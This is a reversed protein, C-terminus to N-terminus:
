RAPSPPARGAGSRSSTRRGRLRLVVIVGIDMGAARSGQQEGGRGVPGARETPGPRAPRRARTPTTTATTFPSDTRSVEPPQELLHVAAGRVRRPLGSRSCSINRGHVVGEERLLGAREISSSSNDGAAPPSARASATAPELLFPRPRASGVSSSGCPTRPPVARDNPDERHALALLRPAAAVTCSPADKSASARSSRPGTRAWPRGTSFGAFISAGSEGGVREGELRACNPGIAVCRSLSMLTSDNAGGVRRAQLRERGGDTGEDAIALSLDQPGVQAHAQPAAV